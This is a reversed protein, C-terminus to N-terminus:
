QISWNLLANYARPEIKDKWEEALQKVYNLKRSQYALSAEESTLYSGIYVRNNYEYLQAIWRKSRSDYTVGIPNGTNTSVNIHTLSNLAHPLMLCTNASYITNGPVLVDKDLEYGLSYYPHNIYWTAFNQFNLWENSVTCNVYRPLRQHLNVDYCRQLMATWTKYVKSPKRDVYTTHPGVGIFGMGYVSARYPNKMNGRVIDSAAAYTIHGYEDLHQIKVTKANVIELVRIQGGENTNFAEGIKVKSM